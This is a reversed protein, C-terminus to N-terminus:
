GIRDHCESFFTCDTREYIEDPLQITKGFGFTVRIDQIIGRFTRFLWLQSPDEILTIQEGKM